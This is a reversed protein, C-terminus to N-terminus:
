LEYFPDVAGTIQFGDFLVIAAARAMRLSLSLAALPFFFRNRFPIAQAMRDGAAGIRSFFPKPWKEVQCIQSFKTWTSVFGLLKFQILEFAFCFFSRALIWNSEIWMECEVFFHLQSSNKMEKQISRFFFRVLGNKPKVKHLFRKACVCLQRWEFWLEFVSLCCIQVTVFFNKNGDQLRHTNRDTQAKVTRPIRVDGYWIHFIWLCKLKNWINFYYDIPHCHQHRHHLRSCVM